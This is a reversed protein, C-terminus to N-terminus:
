RAGGHGHSSAAHAYRVAARSAFPGALRRRRQGATSLTSCTASGSYGLGGPRAALWRPPPPLSTTSASTWRPASVFARRPWARWYKCRLRSAGSRGRSAHRPHGDLLSCSVLDAPLQAVRPALPALSCTLSAPAQDRHREDVPEHCCPAALPKKLSCSAGCVQLEHCLSSAHAPTLPDHSDVQEGLRIGELSIGFPPCCAGSRPPRGPSASLLCVSQSPAGLGLPGLVPSWVSGQCRGGRSCFPATVGPGVVVVAALGARVSVRDLDSTTCRRELSESVFLANTMPFSPIDCLLVASCMQSGSGVLPPPPSAAVSACSM